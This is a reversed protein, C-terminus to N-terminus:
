PNMTRHGQGSPNAAYAQELASQAEDLREYFLRAGEETVTDAWGRGRAQWAHTVYYEGRVELQVYEPASVNRLHRAVEQYNASYGRGNDHSFFFNRAATITDTMSVPDKQTAVTDFLLWFRREWDPVEDRFPHNRGADAFAALLNNVAHLKRVHPYSSDVLARVIARHEALTQRESVRGLAVDLTYKWFRILPDDCGAAVAARVAEDAEDEDAHDTCGTLTRLSLEESRIEMAKRALAAWPASAKGSKEFAGVTTARYQERYLARVLATKAADQPLPYNDGKKAMLDMIGDPLVELIRPPQPATQEKGGPTPPFIAVGRPKDCGASAALSGLALVLYRRM